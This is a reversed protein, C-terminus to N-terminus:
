EGPAVDKCYSSLEKECGNAVSEVIDELAVAPTSIIFVASVISILKTIHKM